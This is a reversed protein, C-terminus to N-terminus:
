SAKSETVMDAIWLHLAESASVGRSKLKEKIAVKKSAPLRFTVNESVRERPPPIDIKGDAFDLYFKRVFDSKKRRDELALEQIASLDSAPLSITMPVTQDM